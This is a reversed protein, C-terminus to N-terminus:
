GEEQFGWVEGEEPDGWGEPVEPDGWEGSTNNFNLPSDIMAPQQLFFFTMTVDMRERSNNGEEFPFDSDVFRPRMGFEGGILRGGNTELYVDFDKWGLQLLEGFRRHGETMNLERFKLTSSRDRVEVVRGNALNVIVKEDPLFSGIGVLYRAKTMTLDSNDIVGELGAITTWDSPRAAKYPLIVVGCVESLKQDYCISDQDEVFELLEYKECVDLPVTLFPNFPIGM